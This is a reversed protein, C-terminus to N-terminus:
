RQNVKHITTITTKMITITEIMIINDISDVKVEIEMKTLDAEGEVEDEVEEVVVEIRSIEIESIAVVEEEAEEGEEKVGTELIEIEEEAMIMMIAEIMLTEKEEMSDKITETMTKTNIIATDEVKSIIIGIIEIITVIAEMMIIIMEIIIEIKGTEKIIRFDTVIM